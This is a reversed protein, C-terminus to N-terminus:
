LARRISAGPHISRACGHHHWRLAFAPRQVELYWGISRKPFTVTVNWRRPQGLGFAGAILKSAIQYCTALAESAGEPARPLALPSVRVQKARLINVPALRFTGAVRTEVMHWDSWRDRLLLTVCGNSFRQWLVKGDTQIEPGGTFRVAHDPSTQSSM